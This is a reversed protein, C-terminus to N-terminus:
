KNDTEFSAKYKALDVWINQELRLRIESMEIESISPDLMSTIDLGEEYALSIEALQAFNYRADLYPTVDLGAKMDMVYSRMCEAKIDPNKLISVDLGDREAKFLVEAQQKTFKKPEPKGIVSIEKTEVAKKSIEEASETTVPKTVAERKKMEQIVQEVPIADNMEKFYAKKGDTAPVFVLNQVVVAENNRNYVEQGMKVLDALRMNRVKGDSSALKYGLVVGRNGVIKTIAVMPKIMTQNFRNWSLPSAVAVMGDAKANICPVSNMYKALDFANLTTGNYKWEYRGTEQLIGEYTLVLASRGTNTTGSVALVACRRIQRIMNNMTM